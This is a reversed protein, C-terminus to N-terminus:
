GRWKVGTTSRGALFNGFHRVFWYFAPKFMHNLSAKQGIPIVADFAPTRWLADADSGFYNIPDTGILPSPAFADVKVTFMLWTLWDNMTSLEFANSRLARISGPGDSWGFKPSGLQLSTNKFMEHHLLRTLITPSNYKVGVSFLLKAVRISPTREILDLQFGTANIEKVLQSLQSQGLAILVQRLGDVDNSLSMMQAKLPDLTPTGTSVLSPDLALTMTPSFFSAAIDVANRWTANVAHKTPSPPTTNTGLGDAPDFYKRSAMTLTEERKHTFAVVVIYRPIRKDKVALYDTRGKAYHHPGVM